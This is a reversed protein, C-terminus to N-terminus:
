FHIDELWKGSDYNKNQQRLEIKCEEITFSLKYKKAINFRKYLFVM